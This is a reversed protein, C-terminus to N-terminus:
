LAAVDASGIEFNRQETPEAKPCNLTREAIFASLCLDDDHHTTSRRCARALQRWTRITFQDTGIQHIRDDETGTSLLAEPALAADPDFALICAAAYEIDSLALTLLAFGTAFDPASALYASPYGGVYPPRNTISM